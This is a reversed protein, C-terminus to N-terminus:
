IDVIQILAVAMKDLTVIEDALGANIVEKPMGFVICSEEAEAIVTGSVNKIMRAGDTGDSGMGTLVVAITNERFIPAISRFLKNACPAVGLEPPEKIVRVMVDNGKEEVIMHLGGPAILAVGDELRDGDVAERVTIECIRSLREAFSKTFGPPMHQVVLIPAPINRPIEKLLYELTQPGGTSSAIVIIKKRTPNFRYKKTETRVVRKVSAKSAVKVKEILAQKVSILDMSIIGSPKTIFDIAGAELAEITKDSGEKTLASLIIVPIPKVEMIKKLATIGDMEPMEVDMVIVDPTLSKIKELAIRGDGATGIVKIESDSSLMDSIIKRMLASDDVVLVNIM